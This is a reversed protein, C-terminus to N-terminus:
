KGSGSRSVGRRQRQRYPVPVTTPTTLASAKRHTTSCSNSLMSLDDESYAGAERSPGFIRYAAFNRFVFLELDPGAGGGLIEGADICTYGSGNRFYGGTEMRDFAASFANSIRSALGSRIRTQRIAGLLEASHRHM